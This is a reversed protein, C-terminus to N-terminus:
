RQEWKALSSESDCLPGPDCRSCSASSPLKLGPLAVRSSVRPWLEINALAHNWQEQTVSSLVSSHHARGWVALARLQWAGGTWDQGSRLQPPSSNLLPPTPIHSGGVWGEGGWTEVKRRFSQARTEPSLFSGSFLALYHTLLHPFWFGANTLRPIPGVRRISSVHPQGPLTDLHGLCLSTFM